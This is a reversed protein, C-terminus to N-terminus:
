GTHESSSISSLVALLVWMKGGRLGELMQHFLCLKYLNLLHMLAGPLFQRGAYSATAGPLVMGRM